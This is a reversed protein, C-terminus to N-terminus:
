GEQWKRRVHIVVAYDKHDDPNEYVTASLVIDKMPAIPLPEFYKGARSFGSRRNWGWNTNISYWRGKLSNDVGWNDTYEVFVRLWISSRWKIDRRYEVYANYATGLEKLRELKKAEHRKHALSLFGPVMIIASITFMATVEHSPASGLFMMTGIFAFFASTYLLRLGITILLKRTKMQVNSKEYM